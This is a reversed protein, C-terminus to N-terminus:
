NGGQAKLQNIQDPTYTTTKGGAEKVTVSGDKGLDIRNGKKDVISGTGDSKASWTTGESNTATANGDADQTATSGDSGKMQGSGDQNIDASNGQDDKIHMGGKDDTHIDITAGTDDKIHANIPKGTVDTNIYSGDKFKAKIGDEDVTIKDGDATEADMSGDPKVTIRNGKDDKMTGSINGDKDIDMKGYESTVSGTGDANMTITNGDATTISGTPNGEKPIHLNGGYGSTVDMSGDENNKVSSSVGDANTKEMDGNPHKVELGGEQTWEKSTGDPYYTGTEGNPGKVYITGDTYKTGVTGDSLTKVITGDTKHEITTGPPDEPDTSPQPGQPAAPVEPPPPEYPPASEETDGESEPEESEGDGSDDVISGAGLGAAAASFGAAFTHHLSEFDFAGISQIHGSIGISNLHSVAWLAIIPPIFNAMGAQGPVPNTVKLFRPLVKAVLLLILGIWALYYGIGFFHIIIRIAAHGNIVATLTPSFTYLLLGFFALFWGKMKGLNLSGWFMLVVSIIVIFAFGPFIDAVPRTFLNKPLAIIISLYKTLTNPNHIGDPLMLYDAVPLLFIMMFFLKGVIPTADIALAQWPKIRIPLRKFLYLVAFGALAAVVLGIAGNLFFGIIIGVVISVLVALGNKTFLWKIREGLTKPKKNDKTM